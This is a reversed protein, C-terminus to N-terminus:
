LRVIRKSLTPWAQQLEKLGLDPEFRFEGSSIIMAAIPDNKLIDVIWVPIEIELIAPGGEKPFIESKSQAYFEAPLLGIDQEKSLVASFGGARTLHVGGPEIFDPNPAEQLLRKARELTTGHSILISQTM